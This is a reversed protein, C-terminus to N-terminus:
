LHGPQAKPFTEAALVLPLWAKLRKERPAFKMVALGILGFWLMAWTQPEPTQVSGGPPDTVTYQLTENQICNGVGSPTQPCFGFCEATTCSYLFEGFQPSFPMNPPPFPYITLDFETWFGQSNPPGFAVSAWKDGVFGGIGTAPGLPGTAEVSGNTVILALGSNDPYPQEDLQFAFNITEVCVGGCTDNGTLTATGSVDYLADARIPLALLLLGLIGWFLRM